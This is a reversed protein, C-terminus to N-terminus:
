NFFKFFLKATKDLLQVVACPTHKRRAVLAILRVSYNHVASFDILKVHRSDPLVIKPIDTKGLKIVAKEAPLQKLAAIVLDKRRANM